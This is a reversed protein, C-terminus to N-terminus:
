NISIKRQINMQQERTIYQEEALRNLISMMIMKTIFASDRKDALM